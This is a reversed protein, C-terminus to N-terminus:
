KSTMPLNVTSFETNYIPAQRIETKATKIVFHGITPQKFIGKCKDIINARVRQANLPSDLRIYKYIAKLDEKSQLSFILHGM